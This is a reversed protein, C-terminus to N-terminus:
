RAPPEGSSRSRSTRDRDARHPPRVGARVPRRQTRRGVHRSRPRRSRPARPAPPRGPRGGHGGRRGSVVLLRRASFATWRRAALYTLRAEEVAPLVTVAVGTAQRVRQLADVGNRAERIPSTAFGVLDDAQLEDARERMRAVTAALRGVAQEPLLMAPFAADALRLIERERAVPVFTGDLQGDVVVLHVTNAGVDLVALRLPQVKPALHCDCRDVRSKGRRSPSAGRSRRVERGPRWRWPVARNTRTGTRPPPGTLM